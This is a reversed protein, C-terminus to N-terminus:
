YVLVATLNSGIVCNLPAVGTNATEATRAVYSFTKMTGTHGLLM